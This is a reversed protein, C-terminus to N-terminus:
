HLINFAVKDKYRLFFQLLLFLIKESDFFKRNRSILDFTLCTHSLLLDNM